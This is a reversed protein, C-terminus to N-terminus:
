KGLCFKSFIEDLLEDKYVEGTIEGLTEWLLRINIEMLDVPTDEKLESKIDNIKTAQNM